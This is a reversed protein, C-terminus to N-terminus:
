EREIFEFDPLISGVKTYEFVNKLETGRQLYSNRLCRAQTSLFKPTKKDPVGWSYMSIYTSDRTSGKSTDIKNKFLDGEPCNSYKLDENLREFDLYLNEGIPAVLPQVACNNHHSNCSRSRKQPVNWSSPPVYTMNYQHSVDPMELQKKDKMYVDQVTKKLNLRSGLYSVKPDSSKDSFKSKDTNHTM